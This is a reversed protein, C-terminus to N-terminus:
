ALGKYVFAKYAKKLLEVVLQYCFCLCQYDFPKCAKTLLILINLATEDRAILPPELAKGFIGFYNDGNLKVM